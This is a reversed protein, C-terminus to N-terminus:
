PTKLGIQPPRMM